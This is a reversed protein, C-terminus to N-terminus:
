NIIIEDITATVTSMDTIDNAMGVIDIVFVLCGDANAGPAYTVTYTGDGTVNTIAGNGSPNWSPTAYFISADYNGSVGTGSITFTVELSNFVMSSTDIPPNAATDGFDNYIEIRLNGNTEIDGYNILSNDVPISTSTDGGSGPGGSSPVLHFASYQTPETINDVAGLWMDTVNGNSDTQLNVIRLENNADAYFNAWSIVPFSPVPVSFSYTGNSSLAYTGETTTGDPTVFVVSNDSSDTTMSFDGYVAPDPTGLWDPYDAASNWSNLFGGSLNTWNLPTDESLKWTIATTTIESVIDEWNGPLTPEEPGTEEPVWNDSYDKSIFNFSLTAPDCDRYIGIQMADETISLIKANNWDLVCTEYIADHLITANTTSLTKDTTNVYFNGSQQGYSPLTLHNVELTAGDVLGFTMEGFDAPGSFGWGQISPLDPDWTWCDEGYCGTTHVGDGWDGGEELYGIDAGFFFMPGNWYKSVGDADVDLLWTKTNGVGGTLMEWIPDSVYNFNNETVTITVPQGEVVGGETIASFNITYTGAFAFRITDVARRSTGSGYDWVPITQPTYNTLIVTNGGEDITYDQVVSYDLESADLIPGIENDFDECSWLSVLMVALLMKVIHISIKKM